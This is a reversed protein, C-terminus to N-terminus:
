GYTVSQADPWFQGIELTFLGSEVIPDRSLIERAAQEDDAELIWAGAGQGWKGAQHLDGVAIRQKVWAVHRPVVEGLSQTDAGPRLRNIALFYM